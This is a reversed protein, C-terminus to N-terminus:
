LNPSSKFENLYLIRMNRRIPRIALNNILSLNAVPNILIVAETAHCFANPVQKHRNIRKSRVRGSLWCISQSQLPLPLSPPLLTPTSWDIRYWVEAVPALWSYLETRNSKKWLSYGVVGKSGCCGGRGGKRRRISCASGIPLYLNYAVAHQWCDAAMRRTWVGCGLIAIWLILQSSHASVYESGATTQQLPNMTTICGGTKVCSCGRSRWQKRIWQSDVLFSGKMNKKEEESCQMAQELKEYLRSVIVQIPRWCLLVHMLLLM